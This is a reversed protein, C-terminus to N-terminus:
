MLLQYLENELFDKSINYSYINSHTKDLLANILNEDIHIKLNPGFVLLTNLFDDAVQDPLEAIDKLSLPLGFNVLDHFNVNKYFNDNSSEDKRLTEQLRATLYVSSQIIKSRDSQSIGSQSSGSQSSGSQSSGSQSSGLQSIGSRLQGRIPAVRPSSVPNNLPTTTPSITNPVPLNIEANPTVNGPPVEDLFPEIVEGSGADYDVKKGYNLYNSFKNM